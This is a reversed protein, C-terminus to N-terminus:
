RFPAPERAWILCDHVCHNPILEEFTFGAREAVRLSATNSPEIELWVRRLGGQLAWDTLARVARPAIGRGRQEPRVWYALEASGPGDPMLGLAGVLDTGAFIGCSTHGNSDWARLAAVADALTYPGVPRPGWMATGPETRTSEVLFDADQSTLPRITLDGLDLDM